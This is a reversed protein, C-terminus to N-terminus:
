EERSTIKELLMQAVEINIGITNLMDHSISANLTKQMNNLAKEKSLQENATVDKFSFLECETGSFVM